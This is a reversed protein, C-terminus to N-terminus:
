LIIKQSLLLISFHLNSEYLPNFFADPVLEITDMGELCKTLNENGSTLLFEMFTMPDIQISNVKGVPFASTFYVKQFDTQRPYDFPISKLVYMIKVFGKGNRFCSIGFIPVFRISYKRKLHRHQRPCTLDEADVWMQMNDDLYLRVYELPEDIALANLACESGPTTKLGEEAINCDIQLFYEAYTYVDISNHHINYAAYIMNM